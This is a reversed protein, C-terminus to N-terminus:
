DQALDYLCVFTKFKAAVFFYQYFRHTATIQFLAAIYWYNILSRQVLNDYAESSM